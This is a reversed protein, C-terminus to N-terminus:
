RTAPAKALLTQAAPHSDLTSELWAVIEDADESAAAAIGSAADSAREIEAAGEGVNGCRGLGGPFEDWGAGPRGDESPFQPVGRLVPRGDSSASKPWAVAPRAM